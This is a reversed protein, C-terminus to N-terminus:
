DEARGVSSGPWSKLNYIFAPTPKIFAGVTALEATNQKARRKTPIAFGTPRHAVPLCITIRQAILYKTHQLFTQNVMRSYGLPIM